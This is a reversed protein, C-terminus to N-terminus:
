FNGKCKGIESKYFITIAVQFVTHECIDPKAFQNYLPQAIHVYIM